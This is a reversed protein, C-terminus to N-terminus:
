YRGIGEYAADMEGRPTLTIQALGGDIFHFHGPSELTWGEGACRVTVFGARPAKLEWRWVQGAPVSFPEPPYGEAFEARCDADRYRNDLVFHQTRAPTSFSLWALFGLGALVVVGAAVIRFAQM